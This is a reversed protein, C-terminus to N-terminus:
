VQFVYDQSNFGGLAFPDPTYIPIEGLPLDGGLSIGGWVDGMDFLTLDAGIHFGLATENQLTADPMLHLSFDIKGDQNADHISANPIIDLPSNFAFPLLTGDELKISADQAKLVSDLDFHQTLDVGGNVNLSLLDVFGLDLPNPSIGLVALALAILDVDLNVIDKPSTGDSHLTDADIPAGNTDVQPWNVTLTAVTNPPPPLPIELTVDASDISLLNFGLDLEGTSAELKDLLPPDYFASLEALFVFDLHYFGGPGHTEFFASSDLVATPDILLSDTTVNYSTDITINYPLTAELDGLTAHLVSQFGLALSYSGGVEGLPGLDLSTSDSIPEVSGDPAVEGLGIFRNDNFEGPLSPDWISQNTTSFTQQTENHNFDFKIQQAVTAQETDHNSEEESVATINLNFDTDQGLPVTVVFQMALDDPENLPNPDGVPTINVGDPVGTWTIRDIFESKDLDTQTATVNILYENITAGLAVSVNLDPVDAVAEVNLNVTANDQGGNGDSVCYLFSDPGSYDPDPIYFVADGPLPDADPGDVIQVTGHQAGHTDTITLIDNPDADTDNTLVEILGTKGLPDHSPNDFGSAGDEFISLPPVDDNVADPAAPAITTIKADQGGVETLRAGFEQHAIDDLTLNHASNSLFFDVPFNIFDPNPGPTGWRIGVDFPSAAGNMNVGQGLNIVSNAQHQFNTILPVPNGGEDTVALGNLKADDFLDFFLGRLDGNGLVDVTFHISGPHDPDEVATVQVGPNGSGGPITFTITRPCFDDDALTLAPTLQLALSSADAAAESQVTLLPSQVQAPPIETPLQPQAQEAARSPLTPPLHLLAESPFPPFPDDSPDFLTSGDGIKYKRAMAIGEEKCLLHKAATAEGPNGTEFLFAGWRGCAM